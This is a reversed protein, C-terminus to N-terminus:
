GEVLAGNAMSWMRRQEPTLDFGVWHFSGDLDELTPDNEWRCAPCVDCMDVDPHHCRQCKANPDM